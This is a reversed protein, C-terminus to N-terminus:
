PLQLQKVCVAAPVTTESQYTFRGSDADRNFVVVNDNDRNAVFVFEGEKDVCFNRPHAGGTEEHAVYTMKGSKPDVAYIVISDHGRNSGYVFKGDPSLHLDATTNNAVEAGEPLTSVRHVPSLAGSKKDIKYSAITSSLEEISFAYPKDPHLAFHRPGAAPSSAAFPTTAPALEGKKDVSYIMIKDIGLDSAYIYKGDKSPIISHMHPENQRSPHAGKGEHQIFDSAAGISGDSNVPYVSLSGGVYNSVFAFKGDPSFSLHCPGPGGASQENLMRLKGSQQDIAFATITGNKDDANMGERYAAYLYKGSPHVELYTPSTKHPLAQLQSLNGSSRDFELVYIGQSGRDSYTGVYLLERTPQQASVFPTSMLYLCIIFFLKKM